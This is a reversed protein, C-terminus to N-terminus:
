GSKRERKREWGKERRWEEKRKIEGLRKNERERKSAPVVHCGFPLKGASEGDERAPKGIVMQCRKNQWARVRGLIKKVGSQM